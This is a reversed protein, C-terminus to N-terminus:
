QKLDDAVKNEWKREKRHIQEVMKGAVPYIVGSLKTRVSLCEEDKKSKNNDDAECLVSVM